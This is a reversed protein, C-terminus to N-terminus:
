KKIKQLLLIVWALFNTNAMLTGAFMLPSFPITRKQEGQPKNLEFINFLLYFVFTYLLTIRVTQLFEPLTFSSPQYFYRGLIGASLVVLLMKQDKIQQILRYILAYALYLIIVVVFPILFSMLFKILPATVWKLSFIILFSKALDIATKTIFTKNFIRDFSQLIQNFSLIIIALSSLVFINILMIISPFPVIFSYKQVPMLLCYVAFLKGDGAAWIGAFYLLFGLTLGLLPNILLYIDPTLENTLFLYTYVAIGLITAIILHNNKIKKFKADTYTTIIGLAIIIPYFYILPYLNTLFQM